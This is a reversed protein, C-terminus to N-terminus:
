QFLLEKAEGWAIGALFSARMSQAEPDSAFARYIAFINSSDPDKPEGPALSNTVIGLIAKRLEKAPLWLPIPNNYSKSMKRGDVGPLTAVNEEISAEPLAFYEGGYIHNFRQGIDRAM